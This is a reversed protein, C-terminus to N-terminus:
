RNNLLEQARLVMDILNLGLHNQKYRKIFEEVEIMERSLADESPTFKGLEFDDTMYVLMVKDKYIGQTSSEILAMIKEGEFSAGGEEEVERVLGERITEGEELHGGPMDWGRENEIALIKTDKIALLFVSSILEREPLVYNEDIYKVFFQSM